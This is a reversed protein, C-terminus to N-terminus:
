WVLRKMGKIRDIEVSNYQALGKGVEWEEWGDDREGIEGKRAMAGVPHDGGTPNGDVTMTSLRESIAKMFPSSPISRSLPDLSAISSSMSMAPLISPTNPLTATGPSGNAIKQDALNGPRPYALPVSSGSPLSFDLDASSRSGPQLSQTKIMKRRRRVFLRVAQHSAFVGEVRVVGAPLLRGGSEKKMIARLAGDDISIGDAAVTIKGLVWVRYNGGCAAWSHDVMESQQYAINM